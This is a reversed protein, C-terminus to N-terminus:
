GKLQAVVKQVVSGDAALKLVPQVLKMLDGFGATPNNSKIESVKALVEAESLPTPLYKRCFTIEDKIEVLKDPKSAYDALSKEMKKVYAAIAKEAKEETFNERNNIEANKVESLLLRTYGLKVKDGSKMYLKMDNTLTDKLM